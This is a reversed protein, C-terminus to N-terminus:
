AVNPHTIADTARQQAIAQWQEGDIIRTLANLPRDISSRRFDQPLPLHHRTIHSMSGSIEAKSQKGSAMDKVDGFLHLMCPYSYGM